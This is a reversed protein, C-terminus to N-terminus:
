ARQIDRDEVVVRGGIKEQLHEALRHAVAVSRHKGGTCGIGINLYSKGESLYQPMLFDVLDFLKTMFTTGVESALVFDKVSPDLGTKDHM